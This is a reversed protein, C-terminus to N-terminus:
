GQIIVQITYKIIEITQKKKLGKKPKMELDFYVSTSNQEKFMNLQKFLLFFDHLYNM